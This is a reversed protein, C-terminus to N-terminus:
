QRWEGGGGRGAFLGTTRRPSRLAYMLITAIPSTIPSIQPSANPPLRDRVEQLRETILQRAQYINTQWSFVVKVVSLGLSSASRVTEVGATGNVVSEIPLTILSEVEEPALGPAETQIEVQPPAFEPLVDLPMQRLQFIGFITLAIAGLVVLWRQVISWWLIRNLM